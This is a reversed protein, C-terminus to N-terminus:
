EKGSKNCPVALRTRRGVIGKREKKRGGEKEAWNQCWVAFTMLEGGCEVRERKRGVRGWIGIDDGSSWNHYIDL